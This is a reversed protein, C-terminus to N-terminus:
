IQVQIRLDYTLHIRVDLCVHPTFNVSIFFATNGTAPKPVRKRGAVLAIGFSSNGIMSLGRM